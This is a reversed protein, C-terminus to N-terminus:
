ASLDDWEGLFDVAIANEYLLGLLNDVVEEMEYMPVEEIPRVIPNGIRERVTITKANEFQREFELVDELWENKAESSLKSSDLNDFQM